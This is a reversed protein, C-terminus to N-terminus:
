RLIKCLAETTHCDILHRFHTNSRVIIWKKNADDILSSTSIMGARCFKADREPLAKTDTTLPWRGEVNSVAVGPTSTEIPRRGVVALNKSFIKNRWTRGYEWVPANKMRHRANRRSADLRPKSLITNQLMNQIKFYFQPKIMSHSLWTKLLLFLVDAFISVVDQRMTVCRLAGCSFRM